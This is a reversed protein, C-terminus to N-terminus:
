IYYIVQIVKITRLFSDVVALTNWQIIKGFLWLFILLLKYMEKLFSFIFFCKEIVKLGMIVWINSGFLPLLLFCSSPPFWFNYVLIEWIILYLVNWPFKLVTFESFCLFLYYVMVMYTLYTGGVGWGPICTQNFIKFDTFTFGNYLCIFSSFIM